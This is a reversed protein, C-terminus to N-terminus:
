NLKINKDSINAKLCYFATHLTKLFKVTGIKLIVM